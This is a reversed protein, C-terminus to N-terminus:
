PILESCSARVRDVDVPPPIHTAEDLTTLAKAAVRAAREPHDRALHTLAACWQALGQWISRDATPCQRWRLECVEHAHFPMDRSLYDVAFNWADDDDVVLDPSV